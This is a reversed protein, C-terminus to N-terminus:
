KKALYRAVNVPAPPLIRYLAGRGLQVWAVTGIIADCEIVSAIVSAANYVDLEAPEAKALLEFSAFLARARSTVVEFFASVQGVSDHTM